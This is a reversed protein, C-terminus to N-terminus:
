EGPVNLVTVPLWHEMIDEVWVRSGEFEWRGGRRTLTKGRPIQVVTGDKVPVASVSDVVM